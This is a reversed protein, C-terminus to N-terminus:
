KKEGPASIGAAKAEGPQIEVKGGSSGISPTVAEKLERVINSVDEIQEPKAFVILLKTDQHYKLEPKPDAEKLEWVTKIATTIDEIKFAALLNGVYFVRSQRSDPRTLVTAMWVPNAYRFEFIPGAPQRQTLNLATLLDDVAVDRLDMPAVAFRSAKEKFDPPAVLNVKEGGQREIAELLEMLSGGPFRLDFRAPRPPPVLGPKPNPASISSAVSHTAKESGESAGIRPTSKGEPVGPNSNNTDDSRGSAVLFGTLLCSALTATRMKM